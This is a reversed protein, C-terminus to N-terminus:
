PGAATRAYYRVNIAIDTVEIRAGHRYVPSVHDYPCRERSGRGSTLRGVLPSTLTAPPAPAHDITMAPSQPLDPEGFGNCQVPERDLWM